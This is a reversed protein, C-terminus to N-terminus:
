FPSSYRKKDYMRRRYAQTLVYCEKKKWTGIKGRDGKTLDHVQRIRSAPYPFNRMLAWEEPSLTIENYNDDLPNM